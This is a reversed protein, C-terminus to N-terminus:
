NGADGEDGLRSFVGELPLSPLEWDPRRESDSYVLGLPLRHLIYTHPQPALYKPMPLEVNCARPDARWSLQPEGGHLLWVLCPQNSSIHDEM